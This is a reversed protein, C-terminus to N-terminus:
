ENCRRSFHIRYEVFDRGVSEAPKQCVDQPCLLRPDPVAASAMIHCLMVHCLWTVGYPISDQLRGGHSSVRVKANVLPVRFVLTISHHRQVDVTHELGGSPGGPGGPGGGSVRAASAVPRDATDPVADGTDGGAPEARAAALAAARSLHQKAAGDGLGAGLGAGEM